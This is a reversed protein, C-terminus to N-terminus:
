AALASLAFPPLPMACVTVTKAGMSVSAPSSSAVSCEIRVWFGFRNRLKVGFAYSASTVASGLTMSLNTPPISLQSLKTAVQGTRELQGFLWPASGLRGSGDLDARRAAIRSLRHSTEGSVTDDSSGPM